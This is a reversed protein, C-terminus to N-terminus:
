LQLISASGGRFLIMIISLSSNGGEENIEEPIRRSRDACTGTVCKQLLRWKLQRCRLNEKSFKGAFAMTEPQLFANEPSSLFGSPLHDLPASSAGDDVKQPVAVADLIVSHRNWAEPSVGSTELAPCSKGLCSHFAARRSTEGKHPCGRQTGYLVSVQRHHLGSGTHGPLINVHFRVVVSEPEGGCTVYVALRASNLSSCVSPYGEHRGEPPKLFIVIIYYTLVHAAEALSPAGRLFLTGCRLCESLGEVLM